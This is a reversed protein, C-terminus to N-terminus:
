AEHCFGGGRSKLAPKRFGVIGGSVEGEGVEGVSGELVFTALMKANGDASM